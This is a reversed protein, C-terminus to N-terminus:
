TFRKVCLDCLANYNVYFVYSVYLNIVPTYRREQYLNDPIAVMSFGMGDTGLDIVSM